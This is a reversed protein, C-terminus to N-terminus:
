SVLPCDGLTFEHEWIKRRLESVAACSRLHNDGLPTPVYFYYFHSEDPVEQIFGWSMLYELDEKAVYNLLNRNLDPYGFRWRKAAMDVLVLARCRTINMGPPGHAHHNTEFADSASGHDGSLLLKYCRDRACTIKAQIHALRHKDTANDVRQSVSILDFTGGPSHFPFSIGSQVGLDRSVSMMQRARPSLKDNADLESWFFPRKTELAYDPVPNDRDFNNAIYADTYGEPVFLWPLRIFKKDRLTRFVLNDYGEARMEEALLLGLAEVSQMHAAKVAFEELTM